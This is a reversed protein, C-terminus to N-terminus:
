KAASNNVRYCFNSFDFYKEDYFFTIIRRLSFKFVPLLEVVSLKKDCPFQVRQDYKRSYEACKSM